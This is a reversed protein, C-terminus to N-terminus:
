PCVCSIDGGALPFVVLPEKVPQASCTAACQHAYADDFTVTQETFRTVLPAFSWSILFASLKSDSFEDVDSRPVGPRVEQVDWSRLYDGTNLFVFDVANGDNQQLATAEAARIAAVDRTYLTVFAGANAWAVPLYLTLLLVNASVLTWRVLRWERVAADIVMVSGVFILPALYYMRASRPSEGSILLPGFPAFFLLLWGAAGVLRDPIPRGRVVLQALVALLGMLVIAVQLRRIPTSYSDWILRSILDSVYSYKASLDLSIGGRPMLGNLWLKTSLVSLGAGVLYGIGLFAGLLLNVRTAPRPDAVLVLCWLVIAATGGLQHILVSLAVLVSGVVLWVPRREIAGREAALFGLLSTMMAVPIMSAARWLVAEGNFPYLLFLAAAVYAMYSNSRRALVTAILLTAGAHLGGQVLRAVMNIQAGYVGSELSMLYYLPIALPRGNGLIHDLSFGTSLAFDDSVWWPTILAPANALWWIAFYAFFIGLLIWRQQKKSLAPQTNSHADIVRTEQPSIPAIDATAPQWDSNM